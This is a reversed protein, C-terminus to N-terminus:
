AYDATGVQGMIVPLDPVSIDIVTLGDHGAVFAHSGAVAVDHACGPIAAGGVIQPSAPNTIDAVVLGSVDVAVYAYGASVAVASAYGPTNASGVWHIHAGYDICEAAAAGFSCALALVASV